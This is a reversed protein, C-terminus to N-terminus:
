LVLALIGFAGILTSIVAWLILFVHAASLTKEALRKEIDKTTVLASKIAEIETINEEAEAILSNKFEEIRKISRTANVTTALERVEEMTSGKLTTMKERINKLKDSNTLKKDKNIISVVQSKSLNLTKSIEKTTNGVLRLRTVMRAIWESETLFKGDLWWENKWNAGEVNYGMVAPGNERHLIGHSYWKKLKATDHAPGGVRHHLGNLYWVEKGTTAYICAPGNVRHDIKEKWEEESLPKGKLYYRKNSGVASPNEIAPGDERHLKDNVWWENNGSAWEIAPDNVRHQEGNIYWKKTGNPYIIAPGDNRHYLGDRTWCKTGGAKEEYVLGNAYSTKTAQKAQKAQKASEWRDKTIFYRGKLYYSCRGDLNEIAPGNDRHLKDNLYWDKRGDPYIVAPGDERHLKGDVRYYKIKNKVIAIPTKKMNEKQADECTIICEIPWRYEIPIEEFIVSDCNHFKVSRKITYTNNAYVDWESELIGFPEGRRATPLSLSPWFDPFPKKPKLLLVKDGSKFTM